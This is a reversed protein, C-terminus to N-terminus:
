LKWVPKFKLLGVGREGVTGGAEFSRAFFSKMGYFRDQKWDAVHPHDHCQACSVNVGFFAVSVDNTLRDHDTVRARLYEAAGKQRPDSDDPLMLERFADLYQDAESEDMWALSPMYAIVPVDAYDAAIAAVASVTEPPLFDADTKGIIQDATMQFLDTYRKNIFLYTGDAAKLYNVSPAEDVIARLMAYSANLQDYEHQLQALQSQLASVQDSPSTQDM